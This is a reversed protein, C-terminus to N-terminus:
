WSWMNSSKPNKCGGSTSPPHCSWPHRPDDCQKHFQQHAELSQISLIWPNERSILTAMGEIAKWYVLLEVCSLVVKVRHCDSNVCKTIWRMKNQMMIATNWWLLADNISWWGLISNDCWESAVLQHAWWDSLSIVHNVCTGEWSCYNCSHCSCVTNVLATVIGLGQSFMGGHM